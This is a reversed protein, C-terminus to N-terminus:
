DFIDGETDTETIEGKKQIDFVPKFLSKKTM